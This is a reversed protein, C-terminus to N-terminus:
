GKTIRNCGVSVSCVNLIIGDEKAEAFKSAAEIVKVSFPVLEDSLLTVNVQASDVL